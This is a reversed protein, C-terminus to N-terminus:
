NYKFYKSLVRTLWSMIEHSGEQTFYGCEILHFGSVEDSFSLNGSPEVLYLCSTGQLNMQLQYSTFIDCHM